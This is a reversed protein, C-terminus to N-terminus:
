LPGTRTAGLLAAAEAEASHVERELAAEDGRLQALAEREGDAGPTSM